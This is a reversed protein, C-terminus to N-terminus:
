GNEYCCCRINKAKQDEKSQCLHENRQKDSSDLHTNLKLFFADFYLFPLGCQFGEPFTNRMPNVMSYLIFMIYAAYYIQRLAVATFAAIGAILFLIGARM